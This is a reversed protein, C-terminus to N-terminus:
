FIWDRVFNKIINKETVFRGNAVTANLSQDLQQKRERYWGKCLQEYNQFNSRCAVTLRWALGSADRFGSAIGQGGFPPFVHAVDGCLIVRGLSWKNCSRAAFGFSRCRLVEICDEPFSVQESLGYRSGPHTIYPFVVKKINEAQSVQQGDEGPIVVFEFRWLHEEPPGFRGCVAPREPNCLFRFDLPFFQDYVGQPAYGLKWLPFNPHTEPTPVAIKWNLAVWTENYKSTTSEMLIGKPEMYHKRTYGTKGDAAALFKSRIRHISGDKDEYDVYV